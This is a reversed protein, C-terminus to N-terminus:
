FELGELKPSKEGLVWVVRNQQAASEILKGNADIDSVRLRSTSDQGIGHTIIRDSEIGQSVLINKCAEARAKSLTLCGEVTGYTACSGVLYIISEPQQKMAESYKKLESEALDVNRFEASNAKFGLSEESISDSVHYIDFPIYDKELDVATSKLQSVSPTTTLLDEFDFSIAESQEFFSEWFLHLKNAASDSIEQEKCAQGLGIWRISDIGSLDPISFNSKLQNITEPVNDLIKNSVTGDPNMYTFDQFRLNGARSIGSSIVIMKKNKAQKCSNLQAKALKIAKLLDNEPTTPEFSNAEDIVSNTYRKFLMKQKLKSYRKEFLSVTMDVTLHPKSDACIIKITGFSEVVDRIEDRFENFDVSPFLDTQEVVFCLANREPEKTQSPRSFGLFILVILVIALIKKM